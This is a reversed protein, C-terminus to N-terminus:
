RSKTKQEGTLSNLFRVIDHIENPTLTRALQFVAMTNVTEDLTAASGDHFYPGTLAINRLTPVKFVYRDAEDGTVNYRGLDAKSRSARGDRAMVGFKEFLNGGVNTGQHCSSCGYEKFLRYGNKEEVTLIDQEGRLYRDFRSNPTILSREFTAIADVINHNRIGDPYIAEFEAVYDPSQKLKTTIQQWNSGMEKPNHVPGDAQDELTEARGDWFQRFNYAVNFVTPANVEGVQAAIGVSKPLQDTGGKDLSHCSACSVTNDGSLQPDHFLKNGLSVKREDLDVTLPLPEIPENSHAVVINNNILAAVTSTPYQKWLITGVVASLGIVFILTQKKM